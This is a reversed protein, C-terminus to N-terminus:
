LLDQTMLNLLGVLAALGISVFLAGFAYSGVKVEDDGVVPQAKHEVDYLVHASKGILVPITRRYRTWAM